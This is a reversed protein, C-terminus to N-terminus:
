GSRQKQEPEEPRGCTGWVSEAGFHDFGQFHIYNYVKLHNECTWPERFVEWLVALFSSLIGGMSKCAFRFFMHCFVEFFLAELM